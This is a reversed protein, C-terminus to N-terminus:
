ATEDERLWEWADDLDAAGFYELDVDTVRDELDTVWELLRNDGVVAYKELDDGHHLWFGIDEDLADLDPVPVTPMYVLVRASGEEHITEEIDQLMAEVDEESLEDRVQYGVVRGGSRDLKEYM